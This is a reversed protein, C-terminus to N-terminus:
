RSAPRGYLSAGAEREIVALHIAKQGPEEQLGVYHQREALIFFTMPKGTHRTLSTWNRLDISSPRAVGVPHTHWEGVWDVTHKSRLWERLAGMRHGRASRRFLTPSAHDWHAPFTASHLQIAGEKRYGLLLGGQEAGTPNKRVYSRISEMLADPVLVDILGRWATWLM